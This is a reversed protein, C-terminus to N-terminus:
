QHVVIEDQINIKAVEERDGVGTTFLLVQQKLHEHYVYIVRFRILLLIAKPFLDYLEPTGMPGVGIDILTNIKPLKQLNAM